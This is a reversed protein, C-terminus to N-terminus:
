IHYLLPLAACSSDTSLGVQQGPRSAAEGMAHQISYVPPFCVTEVSQRHLLHWATFLGTVFMICCLTSPAASGGCESFRQRAGTLVANGGRKREGREEKESAVGGGVGDGWGGDPEQLKKM